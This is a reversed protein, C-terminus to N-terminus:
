LGLMGGAVIASLVGLVQWMVVNEVARNDKKLEGVNTVAFESATATYSLTKGLIVEVCAHKGDSGLSCSQYQTNTATGAISFSTTSGTTFIEYADGTAEQSVWFGGSSQVLTALSVTELYPHDTPPISYMESSLM